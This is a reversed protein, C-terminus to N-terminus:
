TMLVFFAECDKPGAEATQFQRQIQDIFHDFAVYRDGEFLARQRETLTVGVAHDCADQAPVHLHITRDTIPIAGQYPQGSRALDDAIRIVYVLFATVRTQEFDLDRGFARQRQEVAIMYRPQQCSKWRLIQDCDQRSQVGEPRLVEPEKSSQQIKWNPVPQRDHQAIQRLSGPYAIRFPYDQNRFDEM